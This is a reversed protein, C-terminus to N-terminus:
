GLDDAVSCLLDCDSSAKDLISLSHEDVVVTRGCFCFQM